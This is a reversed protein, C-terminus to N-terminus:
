RTTPWQTHWVNPVILHNNISQPLPSYLNIIQYSIVSNQCPFYNKTVLCQNTPQRSNGNEWKTWWYQKHRSCHVVFLVAPYIKLAFGHPITNQPNQNHICWTIAMGGAGGQLRQSPFLTQITHIHPVHSTKGKGKSFWCDVTLPRMCVPCPLALCALCALWALCALCALCLVPRSGVSLQLLFANNGVLCAAICAYEHYSTLVYHCCWM